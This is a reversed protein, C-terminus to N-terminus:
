DIAHTHHHNIHLRDVSTFPQTSTILAAVMEFIGLILHPMYVKDSFGLLWPSATVFAGSIFDIILHIRMPIYKILGAEYNTFISYILALSGAGILVWSESRYEGFDMMMPLTILILGVLYDLVGHIKTPLIKM